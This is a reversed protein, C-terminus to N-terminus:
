SKFWEGSSELGFAPIHIPLPAAPCSSTGCPVFTARSSAKNVKGHHLGGPSASKNSTKQKEKQFDKRCQHKQNELKYQPALFSSIISGQALEILFHSTCM